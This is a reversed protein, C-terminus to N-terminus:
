QTGSSAVCTPISIQDLAERIGDVAEVQEALTDYYLRRFRPNWISAQEPGMWGTAIELIADNSKGLFEHIIVDETVSHGFEAFAAVNVRLAIPESDVLLGDCDCM